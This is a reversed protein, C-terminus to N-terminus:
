DEMIQWLGQLYFPVNRQHEPIRAIIEAEELKKFYNRVTLDNMGLKASAFKVTMVFEISFLRILEFLKQPAQPGKVKEEAEEILTSFRNCRGVAANCAYELGNLMFALWGNWDGETSVKLLKDRYEEQNADFFASPYILPQDMLGLKILMLIILLRGIRGNGDEFPHIAEFQYHAIGIRILDAMDNEQSIFHILNDMLPQVNVVPPPVYRASDIDRRSGIMNQLTRYEGPHWQEGRVGKLLIEHTTKLLHESLPRGEHIDAIAQRQARVFNQVEMVDDPNTKSLKPEFLILDQIPVITGEIRSSMQAEKTISRNAIGSILFPSM